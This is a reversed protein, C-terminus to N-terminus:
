AVAIHANSGVDQQNRNAGTQHDIGNLVEAAHSRKVSPIIGVPDSASEPPMFKHIDMALKQCSAADRTVQMGAM